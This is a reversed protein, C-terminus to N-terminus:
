KELTATVQAGGVSTRCVIMACGTTQKYDLTTTNSALLCTSSGMETCDADTQCFPRVLGDMQLISTGCIGPRYGPATRGVLNAYSPIMTWRDQYTVTTAAAQGDYQTGSVNLDDLIVANTTDQAGLAVTASLTWACSVDAGIAQITVMSGWGFCAPVTSAAGSGLNIPYTVTNSSLVRRYAWRQFGSRSWQIADPERVPPGADAPKYLPVALLLAFVLPVSVILLRRVIERGTM